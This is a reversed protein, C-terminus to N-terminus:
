WRSTAGGGGFNGQESKQGIKRGLTEQKVYDFIPKANKTFTMSNVM